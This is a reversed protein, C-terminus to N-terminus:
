LADNVSAMRERFTTACADGVSLHRRGACAAADFSPGLAAMGAHSIFPLDERWLHEFRDASLRVGLKGEEQDLKALQADARRRIEPDDSVVRLKELFARSAARNGAESFLAAATLCHYPINENSGILECAHALLRAGEQRFAEREAPDRLAGPALYAMFQGASAWLPQDYPLERTGHLLIARAQRYMDEPVPVTQLTLIADAYRYPDRFKPDLQNITELYQGAFEFLRKESMHLGTAVLVHGFILDALASRYGLSLVITQPPPPLLYADRRLTLEHYKAALPARELSLLAVGATLVGIALWDSSSWKV